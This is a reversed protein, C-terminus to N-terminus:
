SNTDLPSSLRAAVDYLGLLRVVLQEHGYLHVCSKLSSLLTCSCTTGPPHESLMTAQAHAVAEMDARMIALASCLRAREAEAEQM